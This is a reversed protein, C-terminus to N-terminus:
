QTYGLSRLKEIQDDSLPKIILKPGKKKRQEVFETREALPVEYSTLVFPIEYEAVAKLMADMQKSLKHHLKISQDYRIPHKELPDASIDFVGQGIRVRTDPELVRILKHTATRIAFSVPCREQMSVEPFELFMVRDNSEIGHLVPLLTQGDIKERFSVDLYDLITPM